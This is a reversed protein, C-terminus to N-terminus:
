GRQKFTNYKMASKITTLSNQLLVIGSEYFQFDITEAGIFPAIFHEFTVKSHDKVEQTVESEIGKMFTDLSRRM